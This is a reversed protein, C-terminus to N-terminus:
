HVKHWSGYICVSSGSRSTRFGNKRFLVGPRYDISAQHPQISLTYHLGVFAFYGKRFLLGKCTAMSPLWPCEDLLSRRSSRRGPSPSLPWLSRLLLLFYLLLLFTLVLGTASGIRLIRLALQKKARLRQEHCSLDHFTGPQTVAKVACHM